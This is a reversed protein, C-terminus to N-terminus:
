PQGLPLSFKQINALIEGALAKADSAKMPAHITFKFFFNGNRAFGTLSTETRGNDTGSAICPSGLERYFIRGGSLAEDKIPGVYTYGDVEEPPEAADAAKKRIEEQQAQDYMKVLHSMTSGHAEIAVTGGSTEEDCATKGKVTGSLKGHVSTAMAAWTGSVDTAAGPMLAKAEKPLPQSGQAAVAQGLAVFLSVLVVIGAGALRDGTQM